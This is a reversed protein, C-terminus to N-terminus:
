FDGAGPLFNEGRPPPRRQQVSLGTLANWNISLHLLCCFASLKAISAPNGVVMHLHFYPKGEMTTVTGTCSAIEFDGTYTKSQYAFKKRDFVGLTVEGVAGIGYLTGLTIQEKTCLEALSALIEEGRDIRIFYTNEFKRYTIEKGCRSHAKNKPVIKDYCSLNSAALLKPYLM